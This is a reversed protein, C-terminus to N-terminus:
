ENRETEERSRIRKEQHIITGQKAKEEETKKREENLFKVLNRVQLSERNLSRHYTIIIFRSMDDPHHLGLSKLHHSLRSGAYFGWNHTIWRGLSFHLKTSVINEPVSKFKDKSDGDILQNLQLFADTLDKPIYVNHLFEQQIRKQYTAEFEEITEAPKQAALQFVFCAIVLSLILRIRMNTQIESKRVM